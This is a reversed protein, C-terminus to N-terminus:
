TKNAKYIEIAKRLAKKDETEERERSVLGVTLSTSAIGNRLLFLFYDETPIDGEVGLRYGHIGDSEDSLKLSPFTTSLLERYKDYDKKDQEFYLADFISM